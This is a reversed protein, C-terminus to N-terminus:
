RGATVEGNEDQHLGQCIRTLNRIICMSVRQSLTMGNSLRRMANSWRAGTGPSRMSFRCSMSRAMATATDEPAEQIIVGSSPTQLYVNVSLIPM